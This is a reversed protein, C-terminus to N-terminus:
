SQMLERYAETHFVASQHYKGLYTQKLKAGDILIYIYIKFNLQWIVIDNIVFTHRDYKMKDRYYSTQLFM